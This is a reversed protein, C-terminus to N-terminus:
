NSYSVLGRYFWGSTERYSLFFIQFCAWPWFGPRKDRYTECPITCSKSAIHPGNQWRRLWRAWGFETQLRRRISDCSSRSTIAYTSALLLFSPESNKPCTWLMEGFYKLLTELRQACSSSLSWFLSRTGALSFGLNFRLGPTVVPQTSFIRGWWHGWCSWGWVSYGFPVRAM